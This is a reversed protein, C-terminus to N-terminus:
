NKTFKFDKDKIAIFWILIILRVGIEYITLKVGIGNMTLNM